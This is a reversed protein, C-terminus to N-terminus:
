VENAAAAMHAQDTRRRESWFVKFGHLGRILDAPIRM